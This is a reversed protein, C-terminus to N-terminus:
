KRIGLVRLARGVLLRTELYLVGIVESVKVTLINLMYPAILDTKAYLADGYGARFVWRTAIRKFGFGSLYQDLDKILTCGIYVESSNVESCVWKVRSLHTGLGILAQLEAGQIDLCIFDLNDNNAIIEDLRVTSVRVVSTVEITPYTEKLNGWDLLSSSVSNSAVNFNMKIGSENWVTANVIRNREPPLFDKLKQILAIQSEVWIIKNSKSWGYAEYDAYEEGLHAGVHLVGDPMVGFKKKLESVPILV